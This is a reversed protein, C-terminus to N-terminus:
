IREYTCKLPQEHTKAYATVESVKTEAIELSYIGAVGKGEHHVKLMIHMAEDMSKKFFKTLVEIVFEMTSYDDNHLIVAYKGPESWEVEDEIAIDSETKENGNMVKEFANWRTSGM